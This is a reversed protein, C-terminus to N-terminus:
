RGLAFALIGTATFDDAPEDSPWAAVDDLFTSARTDFAKFRDVGDVPCAYAGDPVGLDEFQDSGNPGNVIAGVAVDPGGTLSGALNAVQHQPCLPFTQGEGIVFSTGWANAGFVWGRQRAAFDDYATSGTLDRYLEATAVLGLEHSVADYDTVIAASGFPDQDARASADALQAEIATVLKGHLAQASPDRRDALITALEAHALASTDYLNLSDQDSGALYAVAWAQAQHLWTAVRRDGLLQGARATEVSGLEMDDTWSTEPYYGNPYVSVLSTVNHTRAAALVQAAMALYHRALSRNRGAEVQAALAFAAASRGALNPSIPQGPENAAFVPRHSVFYDESGPAPDAADDAEPLRWIDHDGLIDLRESGSGIGVQAYLVGTREDWMKDLWQV